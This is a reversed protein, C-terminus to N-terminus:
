ESLPVQFYQQAFEEMLEELPESHVTIGAGFDIYGMNEDAAPWQALGEGNPDGNTIFNVWYQNMKEALEYDWDRSAPVGDRMSNFVYFQESFHWAWQEAASRDTGIETIREPTVQSFLYTYNKAKGDTRETM